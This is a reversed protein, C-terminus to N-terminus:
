KATEGLGAFGHRGVKEGALRCGAALAERLPRGAALAGIVGANFTDGAGITDMVAAPPVAPEHYLTGDAEIAWAGEAGWAVTLLTHPIQARMERLFADPRPFGSAEAVARSFLVLRAAPLCSEIGPRIKEVEISLTLEPRFLRAHRVMRATEGGPRAEFHAWRWRALDLRAFADLGFETTGRHHVITRSGRAQSLLIASLPPMGATRQAVSLDVGALRLAEELPAAAPHDALLAALAVEHGLGRLVRATNAANGGAEIRLAAARLEEDEAPHHPVSFILDLVASGVCLIRAM